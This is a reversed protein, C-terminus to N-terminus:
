RSRSRPKRLGNPGTTIPDGIKLRQIRRATAEDVPRVLIEDLKRLLAYHKGEIRRVGAYVLTESKVNNENYRTHKLIDFGKRRKENREAIYKDAGDMPSVPTAPGAPMPAPSATPPSIRAFDPVASLPSVAAMPRLRNKFGPPPATGLAPLPTKQIAAQPGIGGARDLDRRVRNNAPAGQQELQHHVHGPLLVQGRGAHQVLGLERMGPMEHAARPAAGTAVRGPHPVTGFGFGIARAYGPRGRQEGAGTGGASAHRGSRAPQEGTRGHQIGAVRRRSQIDNRKSRVYDNAYGMRLADTFPDDFKIDLGDQAVLRVAERIFEPTGQINLNRGFQQRALILADRVNATTFSDAVKLRVGDTRVLGQGTNHIVTGQKTVQDRPSLVGTGAKEGDLTNGELPRREYRARLVALAQTNGTAAQDGLWTLWDPRRTEARLTTRKEHAEAALEALQRRTRDSLAKYLIRKSLRDGKLAKLLRRQTSAYERVLRTQEIRWANIEATQVRYHDSAGAREEKFAAYLASSDVYTRKPGKKYRLRQKRQAATEGEGELAAPGAFAGLRAEMGSKSLARSVSSAKISEGDELSMIVLGNGRPSITLSHKALVTHVEEWSSAAQLGPGCNEQVWSILSQEGAAHEMDRARGAGVRQKTKHNTAELGHETELRQCVRALTKHDNYPTHMRLTRPHIKNIAVHVHLNDTDSHVASVRQHEAYGLATCLKKEIDALVHSSPYEGAPFSIILHYTKDGTARTNQRQTLEAELAAQIPDDQNLNSGRVLGVREDKGQASTIYEVLRRFSSKRTSRM